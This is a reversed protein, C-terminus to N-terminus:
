PVRYYKVILDVHCVTPDAAPAGTEAFYVKMWGGTTFAQSFKSADFYFSKGSGAHASTQTAQTADLIANDSSGGEKAVVVKWYAGGAYNETPAVQSWVTMGVVKMTMNTPLSLYRSWIPATASSSNAAQTDISITDTGAYHWTASSRFGLWDGETADLVHIGGDLDINNAPVATKEPIRLSPWTDARMVGNYPDTRANEILMTPTQAWCSPDVWISNDGASAGLYIYETNTRSTSANVNRFKVGSLSLKSSSGTAGSPAFKISYTGYTPGGDQEDGITIFDTNTLAVESWDTVELAGIIDTLGFGGSAVFLHRCQTFIGNTFRIQRSANALVLQASGSADTDDWARGHFKFGNFGIDIAGNLYLGVGYNREINLSTIIGESSTGAATITMAPLTPSAPWGCSYLRVNNIKIDNQEGLYIATNRVNFVFVDQITCDQGYNSYIAIGDITEDDQGYIVFGQTKPYAIRGAGTGSGSMNILKRAPLFASSMYLYAMGGESVLSQNKDEDFVFGNDFSYSTGLGGPVKCVGNATLSTMALQFATHWSGSGAYFWHPNSTKLGAVVGTGACSFIQYNGAEPTGNLTFTEGTAVSIIAGKEVKLNVNAPVASTPKGWTGPTLVLTRSSAGVAALAADFAATGPVGYDRAVVYGPGNPWLGDRTAVVYVRTIPDTLVTDNLNVTTTPAAYSSSAVTSYVMGAAVQVQVIANAPFRSTYDGTLTFTNNDSYTCTVPILTVMNDTVAWGTVLTNLAIIGTYSSYLISDAYDMAANYLAYATPGKESYSPKYFINNATYTGAHALPTVALLVGAILGVILKKM